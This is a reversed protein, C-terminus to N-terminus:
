VAQHGLGAERAKIVAESRTAVQLKGFINSVQHLQIAAYPIKLVHAITQVLSPLMATPTEAAEVHHALQTLVAAPDDREGYLLRSVGRQLRERVPQFLVAVLGTVLLAMWNNTQAQLLTGPLVVLVVYLAVIVLSLGGYVLTRQIVIDIDFLHHRLIAIGIGIPLLIPAIFILLPTTQNGHTLAMMIPHDPFRTTLYLLMITVGATYVLWKMQAREIRRSRYVRYAVAVWSGVVGLGFVFSSWQMLWNFFDATGAIGLPNSADLATRMEGSRPSLAQAVAYGEMGLVTLATVPWWHPSVLRGDPFFQLALSIPILLWPVWAQHGVWTFWGRALPSAIPLGLALAHLGSQFEALAFFFGVVLFLWGVIHRPHRFIILV